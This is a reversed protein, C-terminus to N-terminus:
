RRRGLLPRCRRRGLGAFVYGEFQYDGVIVDEVWSCEGVLQAANAYDPARGVKFIEETRTSFYPLLSQISEVKSLKEVDVKRPAELREKASQGGVGLVGLLREYERDKEDLGQTGVPSGSQLVARRFLRKDSSLHYVLCISGASEGFATVNGPDGGFGAINEQIWQFARWQAYLGVNFVGEGGAPDGGGMRAEKILDECALFGLWNLRYGVNVVIVPMEEHVSLACLRANDHMGDVHGAGERAGDGHVYVVVPVRKEPGSL